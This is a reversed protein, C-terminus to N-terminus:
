ASMDAHLASEPPAGVQVKEPEASDADNEEDAPKLKAQEEEDAAAEDEEEPKTFYPELLECVIELVPSTVAHLGFFALMTYFYTMTPIEGPTGLVEWLLGTDGVFGVSIYLRIANDIQDLFDCPPIAEYLTALIFSGAVLGGFAILYLQAMDDEGKYPMSLLNYMPVAWLYFTCSQWIGWIFTFQKKEEDPYNADMARYIVFGIFFTMIFIMWAYNITEATRDSDPEDGAWNILGTLVFSAYMFGPMIAITEQYTSQITSHIQYPLSEEDEYAEIYKAGMAARAVYHFANSQLLFLLPGIVLTVLVFLIFRAWNTDSIENATAKLAVGVTILSIWTSNYLINCFMAEVCRNLFFTGRRDGSEAWSEKKQGFYVTGVAGVPTMAVGVFVSVGAVFWVQSAPLMFLPGYFLNAVFYCAAFGSGLSVVYILTLCLSHAWRALLKTFSAEMVHEDESM